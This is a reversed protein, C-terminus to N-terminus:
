PEGCTRRIAFTRDIEGRSRKATCADCTCGKWPGIVHRLGGDGSTREYGPWPNAEAISM